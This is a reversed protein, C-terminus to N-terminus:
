KKKEEEFIGDVWDHKQRIRERISEIILEAADVIIEIFYAIFGLALPAALICIIILWAIHITVYM